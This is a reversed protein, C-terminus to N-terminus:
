VTAGTADVWDSGNRWIPKGLTTDFYQYGTYVGSTPREATTGIHKRQLTASGLAYSIKGTFWKSATEDTIYGGNVRDGVKFTIGVMDDTLSTGKRVILMLAVTIGSSDNTISNIFIDGGTFFLNKIIVFSATLSEESTITLSCKLIDERTFTSSSVRKVVTVFGQKDYTITNNFDQYSSYNPQKDYDLVRKSGTSAFYVSKIRNYTGGLIEQEKIQDRGILERTYNSSTDITEELRYPHDSDQRPRWSRKYEESYDLRHYTVGSSSDYNTPFLNFRNVKFPIVTVSVSSNDLKNFGNVLTNDISATNTFRANSLIVNGKAMGLSNSDWAIYNSVEEHRCWGYIGYRETGGQFLYNSIYNHGSSGSNTSSVFEFGYKGQIYITDFVLGNVYSADVTGSNVICSVIIGARVMEITVNKCMQPGSIIRVPYLSEAGEEKDVFRIAIGNIRDLIDNNMNGKIWLNEFSYDYNVKFSDQADVDTLWKNSVRFIDCNAYSASHSLFRLDIDAIRCHRNVGFIYEFSNNAANIVFETAKGEAGIFKTHQALLLDALTFSYIGKLFKIAFGNYGNENAQTFHILKDSGSDVNWATPLIGIWAACVERVNKLNIGSKFIVSTESAEIGCNNCDLIGNDVSGGEFQLICNAPVVVEAGGLDFDYMIKYITNDQTLQSAFPKNKRLIICGMGANPNSVSAPERDKLKLEGNLDTIDEEDAKVGSEHRWTGDLTATLIDNLPQNYILITDDGVLTGNSISGGDFEILCGEPITITEGDLDFNWKIVYKVNAKSVMDQTLVIKDEVMVPKPFVIIYNAYESLSSRSGSVIVNTNNFAM